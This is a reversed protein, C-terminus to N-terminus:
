NKDRRRLCRIGIRSSSIITKTYLGEVISSALGDRIDEELAWAESALL